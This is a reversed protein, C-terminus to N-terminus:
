LDALSYGLEVPQGLEDVLQGICNCICAGFVLNKEGEEKWGGIDESKKSSGVVCNMFPADITSRVLQFIFM